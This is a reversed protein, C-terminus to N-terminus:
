RSLSLLGEVYKRTDVGIGQALRSAGDTWGSTGSGAGAGDGFSGSLARLRSHEGARRILFIEKGVRKRPPASAAGRGRSRPRSPPSSLSSSPRSSGADSAQAPALPPPQPAEKDAKDLVRTWVVWWGRSTKCTRELESPEALTAVYTNLIQNHTNIAEVRSWIQQQQQQQQAQALAARGPSPISPITSHVTLAEPDWILDFIHPGTSGALDPRGPRYSTSAVLPKRLPALQYHLSRYLGDWALSDTGNRFLFTYILPKNVYVVVRVKQVKNRDQSEFHDTSNPPGGSPRATSEKNDQIGLDRTVEAEPLGLDEMEVILTRLVIRSNYGVDESSADSREMEEERDVAGAEEVDGLLGILYHGPDSSRMRLTGQSRGPLGGPTTGNKGTDETGASNSLTWHTGYGMTLYSMFRNVSGEDAPEDPSKPSAAASRDLTASPSQAAPRKPSTSDDELTKVVNEENGKTAESPPKKPKRAQRISSPSDRVGYAEEGWTYIDEMWNTIDRLSKRSLAGVGLFIAGDEAGPEEGTGLWKSAPEEVANPDRALGDDTGSESPGFKSVVLDVLGDVRDVFGELVEREGSGREEEGVGVGLEGCAAIKIGGFINTAPNGHLMVDWTSLFLDWYRSLISVFKSRKSRVFLASLSSSHHLLFISHARLLDQMLLAAPKIERSSYEVHKSPDDRQDPSSVGLRPPLPIKTLDISALIWWGPELEHLVVRTKETEIADIAKNGSFGRSFEVMGQALGIQRLRENREDQSISDTPKGRPRHRRRKSQANASTYYVIQDDITEDTTGLSPNFIALFGLQAPVVTALPPSVVAAM